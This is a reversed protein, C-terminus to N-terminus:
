GDSLASQTQLAAGTIRSRPEHVVQLYLAAAPYIPVCAESLLVFYRNVPNHVAARLLVFMAASLDLWHAEVRNGLEYGYFVNDQRYGPFDPDTHM